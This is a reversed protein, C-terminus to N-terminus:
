GDQREMLYVQRNSEPLQVSRHTRFLPRFAREFGEVSYDGAPLAKRITTVRDSFAFPHKERTDIIIPPM